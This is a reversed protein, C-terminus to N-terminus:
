FPPPPAIFPRRRCYLPSADHSCCHFTQKLKHFGHTFVHFGFLFGVLVVALLILCTCLVCVRVGCCM